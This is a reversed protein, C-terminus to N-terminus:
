IKLYNAKNPLVVGSARELEAVLGKWDDFYLIDINIAERGENIRLVTSLLVFFLKADGLTMSKIPIDKKGVLRNFTVKKGEVIVSTTTREALVAGAFISFLGVMGSIIDLGTLATFIGWFGYGIFSGAIAVQLFLYWWKMRFEM